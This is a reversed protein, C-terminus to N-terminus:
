SEGFEGIKKRGFNEWTCYLMIKLNQWLKNGWIKDILELANTMCILYM